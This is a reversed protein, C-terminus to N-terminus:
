KGVKELLGAMRPEMFYFFNKFFLYSIFNSHFIYSEKWNM